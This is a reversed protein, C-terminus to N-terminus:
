QKIPKRPRAFRIACGGGAEKEVVADVEFVQKLLDPTLIEEPTGTAVLRGASIVAIRDCFMAAHYLDHLAAVVTLNRDKVLDLLTLQHHIDLHNTPEDLVMVKPQQALARAIHLRQREGGSLTHWQRAAFATMGVDALAVDVLADDAPSWPSLLALHPTRGLEVAQRATVREATEAQQEVFAIQRAVAKRGLAELPQGEFMVTGAHPRRLGTLLGMLTTKGSGNPGVIGLFEGPKVTLSVGDVISRGDARWSVETAVLSM